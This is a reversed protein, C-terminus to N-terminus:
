PAPRLVEEIRARRKELLAGDATARVVRIERRPNRGSVHDPWNNETWLPEARVSELCAGGGPDKRFVAVLAVGDRNDGDAVAQVGTYKRDQNSIFNGLSYAVAGRRGEAEVWELPQLVHPHHGLILDAGAAIFLAALARQRATPRYQYENGWHLSVVVMDTRSRLARIAEANREPDLRAIWPGDKSKNGDVNLLDTYALVGVSIGKRVLIRPAEAQSRTKGSGAADLGASELRDLTELLGKPGQDFAHNNATFLLTFGSSKLAGPLEAPANFVFPRGPAGCTPAVPTELNGFLLDAGEFLPKLDSWLAGFGGQEEAAARKVDQHMLLDGVAVLSLRSPEPLAQPAPQKRCALLALLAFLPPVLRRM